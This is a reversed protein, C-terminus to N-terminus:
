KEKEALMALNLQLFERGAEPKLTTAPTSSRLEGSAADLVQVVRELDVGGNPFMERCLNLVARADDIRGEEYYMMGLSIFALEDTPDLKQARKFSQESNRLDNRAVEIVGKLWYLKASDPVHNLGDQVAKAANEIQQGRLHTLALEAYSEDSQPNAAIAQLFYKAAEENHGLQAQIDGLLTLYATDRQEAPSVSQLVRLADEYKRTRFYAEGLNYKAEGSDPSAKLADQLHRIAEGYLHYRALL